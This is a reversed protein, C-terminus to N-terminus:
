QSEGFRYKIVDRRDDSRSEVKIRGKETMEILSKAKDRYREPVKGLSEYKESTRGDQIHIEKLQTKGDAVTGTVTIVLSGEQHRGTFRDDTRMITTMVANNGPVNGFAPAVTAPPLAPLPAVPRVAPAPLAGPANPRAAPAPLVGPAGPVAPAAPVGPLAPAGAGPAPAGPIGIGRIVPNLPRAEDKGEPLTIGKLTEKKGKRIVVADVATDAKIENLVRFFERVDSPVAKGDLEMLIDNDKFRAKAAARGPLVHAILIGKGNPLDLQETLAPTMQGITVGLRTSARAFSNRTLQVWQTGAKVGPLNAKLGELQKLIDKKLKEMEPGPPLKELAKRLDGLDDLGIDVVVRPPLGRFGANGGQHNAKLGELQKLIDKKLKEMEPGPPLKELAKRLDSLDDGIDVVVKPQEGDRSEVIVIRQQPTATREGPAAPPAKQAPKEPDADAARLGLGSACVAVAFLGALTALSWRRPCASEMRLPNQLLMTIRRFLDSHRGVVGIAVRPGAPAEALSVLFHAYDEALGAQRAAAADAIFEQCLRVQRRLWWFWPCYFYVGQALGFLLCSWPDCRELHTLEHAFVWRLRSMDALSLFHAPLVVAPRWLGCSVPVWLQDSTLLRPPRKLLRTMDAFLEAAEGQAPTCSGLFRSLAVWGYLWRGTIALAVLCYAAMLGFALQDRSFSAAVVAWLAPWSFPRAAPPPAASSPLDQAPQSLDPAPDIWTLANAPDEEDPWPAPPTPAPAPTYERGLFWSFASEHPPRHLLLWSPGASLVAAFLAALVGWEGLRQRRAPQRTRWTLVWVALLLLGGGLASRLWWATLLLWANPM